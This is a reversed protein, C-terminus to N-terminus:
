VQSVKSVFAPGNDSRIMHPFEYRPLIDELLKKAVVKATETKTPFAETWRSFTDVFVLLYKYSYKRPKIETFDVKWYAGLKKYWLLSGPHKATNHTNTLHCAKLKVSYEWYYM